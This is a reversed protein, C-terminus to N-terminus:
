GDIRAEVTRSGNSRERSHLKLGTEMDKLQLSMIERVREDQADAANGGSIWGSGGIEKEHEALLATMAQKEAALRRRELRRVCDALAEGAQRSDFPPLRRNLLRELYPRLEEPVADKVHEIEETTRLLELLAQNASEWLLHAPVDVGSRRLHPYQLLLALLFEERPDGTATERAPPHAESDRRPASRLLPQLDREALLALRSLKQVYHARVIPDEIIRIVRALEKAMQTRQKPNSLDFRKPVEEFWFDMLPRAEALLARWAEPSQRIVDDPDKGQPLPAAMVDVDVAGSVIGRQIRLVDRRFEEEDAIDPSPNFTRARAGLDMNLELGRLTAESGAADADLVLVINRAFRKLTRLQRESLATGMAAVVNRLGHQHAAIVDMYGEVIIARGEERMAEEALHLGYLVGGKDFIPTQSTNLYKPQTDDLARAGFGIVRGKQDWIPFMLRGRFRDHPQSEGAVLLGAELLERDSFGQPKLSERLTEWGPPSYGLKFREATEEDIGRRAVYERAQAADKSNLLIRRYLEAAAENAAYLRAHEQEREEARRREPLKVGAREATLRLAEPFTLGDKRMVFSIVDGGTGCAGFCHWSQRSPSVIFSPTKETHFPCLAKYTRGSRKLQVYQGIFDVIDLRAKIEEVENM